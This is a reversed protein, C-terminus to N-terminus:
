KSGRLKKIGKNTLYVGGVIGAGVGIAFGCTGVTAGGVVYGVGTGLSAGTVGGAFLGSVQVIKEEKTKSM